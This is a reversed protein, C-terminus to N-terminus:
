RREPTTCAWVLAGVWGLFTWGAFLSLMLIALRQRHHRMVAVLTPMFYLAICIWLILKILVLINM